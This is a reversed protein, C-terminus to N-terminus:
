QLLGKKLVYIYTELTSSRVLPFPFGLQEFYPDRMGLGESVGVGLNVGLKYM